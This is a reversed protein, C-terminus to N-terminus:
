LVGLTSWSIIAWIMSFHKRHKVSIVLVKIGGYRWGEGEGLSKGVGRHIDAVVSWQGVIVETRCDGLRTGLGAGNNIRGNINVTICTCLDMSTSSHRFFFPFAMLWTFSTLHVHPPCQSPLPEVVFLASSWGNVPSWVNLHKHPWFLKKQSTLFKSELKTHM